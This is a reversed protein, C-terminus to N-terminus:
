PMTSTRTNHYCHLIQINKKCHFHVGLTDNPLDFSEWSTRVPPLVALVGGGAPHELHYRLKLSARSALRNRKPLVSVSMVEVEEEM